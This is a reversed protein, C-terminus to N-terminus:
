TLNVTTMVCSVVRSLRHYRLDLTRLGRTAFCRAVTDLSVKSLANGVLSLNLLSRLKKLGEECITGFIEDSLFCRNFSVHQIETYRQMVSM